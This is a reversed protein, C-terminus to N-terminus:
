KGEKDIESTTPYTKACPSNELIYFFYESLYFNTKPWLKRKNGYIIELNAHLTPKFHKENSIVSVSFEQQRRTPSFVCSYCSAGTVVLGPPRKM